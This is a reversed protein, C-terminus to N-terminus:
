HKNHTTMDSLANNLRECLFDVNEMSFVLPPRIKLVNGRPGSTSILVGNERLDNVLRMADNSAPTKNKRDTVLEVGLFLGAGRIDGILPYTQALQHLSTKLYDGVEQARKQLGEREVVELVAIGAACSVPNGGFTNFYRTQQSFAELLESKAMLGALPHGNGMPKGMTLLDPVVGHRLVGWMSDGTRGLGAQVEDAIFVGGAQRIAKVAPQLFGKPDAFVGDSSFISDVLLAAPKIGKQKMRELAQAVQKQFFAALEQGQLRYSDPAAIMFVHEGIRNNAGLSPSLQALASTVGHYAFETIIVGTGGTYAQAIRLALDNAESGTCTLMLQNLETPVTALLKEAYELISSDLYRTHTNLTSAQRAIAEVVHPHCHGVSPVNNYADLYPKGQEDYLWVGKGRVPHFPKEYFLRYAPGLSQKRRALLAEASPQSM